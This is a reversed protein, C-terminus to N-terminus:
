TASFLRDEYNMTSTLYDPSFTAWWIGARWCGKCYSQDDNWNNTWILWLQWWQTSANREAENLDLTSGRIRPVDWFHGEIRGYKMWVNNWQAPWYTQIEEVLPLPLNNGLMVRNTLALCRIHIFFCLLYISHNQSIHVPHASVLASYIFHLSPSLQSLLLFLSVNDMCAFGEHWHKEKLHM